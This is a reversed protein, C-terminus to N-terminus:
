YIIRRLRKLEEESLQRYQGPRLGELSINAIKTRLLRLVPHGIHECMKRIQRNRGEFLVIELLSRDEAIEVAKVKAPTTLRGELPIGRALQDLKDAKPRGAVRVLYTKPIKHKPHTLLYTLDGDNTLLLLGESSYDLRGVPYVRQEFGELLDAVCKRGREDRVSSVYGRPKYLAFYYKESSLSLRKGSVFIEDRDPDVKSGFKTITNGNVVVEGAAILEECRRRSAVGAKALVKQLREM